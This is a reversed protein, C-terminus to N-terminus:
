TESAPLSQSEQEVKLIHRRLKQTAWKEFRITQMRNIHRGVAVVADLHYFRVNRRINRKGEKQVVSFERATQEEQLESSQFIKKLHMNVNPVTTGFLEVITKQSFWLTSDAYMVNIKANNRPSRLVLLDSIHYEFEKM